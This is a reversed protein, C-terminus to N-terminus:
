GVVAVIEVVVVLQLYNQHNPEQIQAQYVM